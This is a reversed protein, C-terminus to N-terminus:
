DAPSRAAGAPVAAYAAVIRRMRAVGRDLEALPLHEDAGHIGGSDDPGLAFPALGYAPVRRERFFRSDTTGADLMPVVAAERGLVERIAGYLRGSAPSPPAPPATMLVEVSLRPGLAGRVAALFAAGDTDPLLRADIRAEAAAPTVNIRDGGALVTVQVTDLFLSAMGPFIAERPGHDGIAEDVHTLLHQWHANHLPALARLYDRVPATVRWHQPLALLRALGAILQHNASEPNLASGHGGRGHASIRLWLPRKQAVEVGWWLLRDTFQNRGGEGIVGEVGAFLEPHSALLWAAGQGGGNEEDAVALFLVDRDLQVRRRELDVLAALGCIGLGKDDLTGRGWLSGDRIVGAFPPVTWGAGPAVVDLHHLLLVARGGSRTSTLRASLSARGTPSLWLRSPIGERALIAALYNAALRENGPPNTTDIQVYGRLWGAAESLRRPADGADGADGAPLAGCCCVALAVALLLLCRRFSPIEPLRDHRPCPHRRRRSRRGLM